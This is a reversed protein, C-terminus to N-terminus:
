KDDSLDNTLINIITDYLQASNGRFAKCMKKALEEDGAYVNLSMLSKKDDRLELHAEFEEYNVAVPKAILSDRVKQEEFLSSICEDVYERVELPIKELFNEAGTEGERTLAYLTKDEMSKFIYIEGAGSLFDLEDHIDFFDITASSLVIHSIEYATLARKASFLTYLIVLRIEFKDDIKYYHKM